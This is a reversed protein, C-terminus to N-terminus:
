LDREWTESMMSQGFATVPESAVMKFGLRQYLRRAAVLPDNTWLTMRTNGTTRAFDMCAEVLRRGLGTGRMSPEVYVLRLKAVGPKGSRVVFASGVVQGGAEAIRCCDHNPDYQEIFEGAIRAVLAEFTWDWGYERNYLAGHRHVVWGIDGPRPDRIVPVPKRDGGCELEREILRMAAVVQRQAPPSLGGVLRAVEDRSRADIADFATRGATTLKLVVSRGDSASAERTVLGRAELAALLRSVYGADLGLSAALAGPTAPAPECQAIEFLLRGQPLTLGSGLLSDQLVGIRRTYYRSFHRVAAVNQGLM